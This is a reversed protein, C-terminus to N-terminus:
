HNHQYSPEEQKKEDKPMVRNIKIRSPFNIIETQKPQPGLLMTFFAIRAFNPLFSYAYKSLEFPNWRDKIGQTERKQIAIKLDQATKGEFLTYGKGIAACMHADSGGVEPKFLLLRNFYKAKVNNRNFVPTGNVVEIADIEPKEHILIAAGVGRAIPEDGKDNFRSIYFPHAPIAIGGQRHIEKIAEHASIDSNIKEKLFLGILHGETTSIEEGIIVEFRYGHEKVLRQAKLAGEITDHDTIAIVDLTTKDQVFNLIEEISAASDSFDSHIHIDARSFNKEVYDFLNEVTSSIYQAKQKKKIKKSEM